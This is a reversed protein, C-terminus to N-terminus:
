DQSVAVVLLFFIMCLGFLCTFVFMVVDAMNHGFDAIKTSEISWYCMMMCAFALQSLGLQSLRYFFMKMKFGKLNEGVDPTESM